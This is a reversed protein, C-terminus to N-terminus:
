AEGALTSWPNGSESTLQHCLSMHTRHTPLWDKTHTSSDQISGTGTGPTM